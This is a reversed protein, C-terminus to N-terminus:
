TEGVVIEVSESVGTRDPRYFDELFVRIKGTGNRVALANIELTSGKVPLNIYQIGPTLDLLDINGPLFIRAIPCLTRTEPKIIITLIEGIIVHSSSVEISFSIEGQKELYNVIEERDSRVILNKEIVEVKGRVPFIDNFSTEVGNVIARSGSPLFVESLLEV